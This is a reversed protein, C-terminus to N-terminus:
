RCYCEETANSKEQCHSHNPIKGFEDSAFGSSLKKKISTDKFLQSSKEIEARLKDSIDVPAQNYVPLVHWTIAMNSVPADNMSNSEPLCFRNDTVTYASRSPYLYFTSEVQNGESKMTTDRLEIAGNGDGDQFNSLSFNEAKKLFM